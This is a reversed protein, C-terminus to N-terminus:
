DKVEATNNKGDVNEGSAEAKTGSVRQWFSKWIAMKQQTGPGARVGLGVNM